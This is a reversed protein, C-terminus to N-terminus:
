SKPIKHNSGIIFYIIAGIPSLLLTLLLWMIKDNDKFDHRVIDIVAFITLIFGVLSIVILIGMITFPVADSM